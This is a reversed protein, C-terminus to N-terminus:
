LLFDTITVPIHIPKDMEERGESRYEIERETDNRKRGMQQRENRKGVQGGVEPVPHPSVVTTQLRVVQQCMKVVRVDKQQARVTVTPAGSGM